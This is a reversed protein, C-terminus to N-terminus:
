RVARRRYQLAEAIHHSRIVPSREIDAITRAIKKTKILSRPEMKMKEYAGTLLAEGESDMLCLESILGDPIDGNSFEAKGMSALKMRKRQFERTEAITKRMEHSTTGKNVSLDSYLPSALDIHIDIRTMIPGSLKTRYNMLEKQSCSCEKRPDGYYGCKCPNSATVLMFDAPYKYISGGKNLIVNKSELPLRLADIFERTREGLEDLFLIGKHALTIEGPVPPNGAGLLGPVTTSVGPNRFPRETIIRRNNDLLGAISYISTLELIEDKNLDPMIYPLREAMMTKGTGPSGMMLVGHNGSAAIIMARKASEQGKIEGYDPYSLANTKLNSDSPAKVAKVLSSKSTDDGMFLKDKLNLHGAVDSLNSAGLVIIDEVLLAESLNGMPVIVQKIGSDRLARVMPMIGKCRNIEGGLALEGLFATESLEGDFIQHSSALVGITMALDFHSGKKKLWAPSLNITIRSNPFVFGSARVGSKMRAAAEKVTVDGLGIINVSPIGRSIDTEVIVPMAEMGNIGCSVVKSLM